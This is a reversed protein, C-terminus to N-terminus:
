LIVDTGFSMKEEDPEFANKDALYTVHRHYAIGTWSQKLM